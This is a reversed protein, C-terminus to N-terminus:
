LGLSKTQTSSLPGGPATPGGGMKKLLGNVEDFLSWLRTIYGSRQDLPAHASAEKILSELVQVPATKSALYSKLWKMLLPSYSQKMQGSRRDRLALVRRLEAVTVMKRKRVVSVVQLEGRSVMKRVAMNSTGLVAGVEGYTLLGIREIPPTKAKEPTHSPLQYRYNPHKASGLNIYALKGRRRLKTVGMQSISLETSIDRTTLWM